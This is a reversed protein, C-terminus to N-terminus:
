AAMVAPQRPWRVRLEPPFARRRMDRLLPLVFGIKTLWSNGTSTPAPRTRRRHAFAACDPRLDDRSRGIRPYQSLLYFRETIADFVGDAAAVNGGEKVIYNWISSLTAIDVSALIETRRGRDVVKGTSSSWGPPPAARGSRGVARVVGTWYM